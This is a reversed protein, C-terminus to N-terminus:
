RQWYQYKWKQNVFGKLDLIAKKEIRSIYSRSINLIKAVENQTMPIGGDLGYRLTLIEKERKTLNNEIFKLLKSFLVATEAKEEVSNKTDQLVDILSIENGDKDTGIKEEISIEHMYKKQSRLLMLIENQICRAAYTSFSHGKNIDYSKVAKMLGISGVSILEDQDNYNNNKYKKVIHAVLRLNHKILKEESEKNGQKALIFCEKEEESSLPKLFANKNALRGTLLFIKSLLNLLSSIFM